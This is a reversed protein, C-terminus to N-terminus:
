EPLGEAYRASNEGKRSNHVLAKLFLIKSVAKVSNISVLIM